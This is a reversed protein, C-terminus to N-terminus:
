RGELASKIPRVFFTRCQTGRVALLFICFFSSTVFPDQKVSSKVNCDIVKICLCRSAVAPHQNYGFENYAPGLTCYEALVKNVSLMQTQVKRQDKGDFAFTLYSRWRKSGYSGNKFNSACTFASTLHSCLKVQGPRMKAILIDNM